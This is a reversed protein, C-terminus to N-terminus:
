EEYYSFEKGKDLDYKLGDYDDEAEEMWKEVLRLRSPAAWRALVFAALEANGSHRMDAYAQLQDFDWQIFGKVIM